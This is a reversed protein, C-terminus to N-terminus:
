DTIRAWTKDGPFAEDSAGFMLRRNYAGIESSTFGDYTGRSPDKANEARLASLQEHTRDAAVVQKTRKKM